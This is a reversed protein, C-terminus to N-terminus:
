VFVNLEGKSVRHREPSRTGPEPEVKKDDDERVPGSGGERGNQQESQEGGPRDHLEAQARGGLLAELARELDAMEGELVGRAHTNQVGIQVDLRGEGSRMRVDVRGLEASNVNLKLRSENGDQLYRAREVVTQRLERRATADPKQPTGSGETRRTGGHRSEVREASAAVRQGGPRREGARSSQQGDPAREVYRRGRSDTEGHKREIGSGICHAGDEAGGSRPERGADRPM